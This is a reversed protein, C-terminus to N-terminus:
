ETYRAQQRMQHVPNLNARGPCGESYILSLSRGESQVWEQRADHTATTGKPRHFPIRMGRIKSRTSCDHRISDRVPLLQTRSLPSHVTFVTPAGAIASKFPIRCTTYRSLFSSGHGLSLGNFPPVYWDMHLVILLASIPGPASAKPTLVLRDM